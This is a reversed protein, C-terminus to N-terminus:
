PSRYRCLFSFGDSVTFTYTFPASAALASNFVTTNTFNTNNTRIVQVLIGFADAVGSFTISDGNNVFQNLVGTLAVAQPTTGSFLITATTNNVITASGGAGVGQFSYNLSALPDFINLQNFQYSNNYTSIYTSGSETYLYFYGIGLTNLAAVAGQLDGTNFTSNFITYTSAGVPRYQIAVATETTLTFTTVDYRYQTTANSTDLLNYPNGLVNITVPYSVNSQINLTFSLDQIKRSM